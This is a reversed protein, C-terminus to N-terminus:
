LALCQRAGGPGDTRRPGGGHGTRHRRGAGGRGPLAATGLAVHYAFGSLWRQMLWWALPMAIAGAWLVPKSFQWLLLMVIDAGTGGMAKRIGIEKTRRQATAISLAFLGLCALLVAIGALIAFAQGQRQVAVVMEQVYANLFTRQIPTGDGAKAWLADMADLTEPINAGRLKVHLLQFPPPMNGMPWGVSYAM